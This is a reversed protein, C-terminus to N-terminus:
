LIAEEAGNRESHRCSATHIEKAELASELTGWTVKDSISAKYGTNPNYPVKVARSSKKDPELRWCVWNPQATIIQPFTPTTPM